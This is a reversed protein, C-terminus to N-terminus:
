ASINENISFINRKSWQPYNYYDNLYGQRNIAAASSDQPTMGSQSTEEQSYM